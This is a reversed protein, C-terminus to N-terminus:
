LMTSLLVRALIKLARDGELGRGARRFAQCSGSQRGPMRFSEEGVGAALNKNAEWRRALV